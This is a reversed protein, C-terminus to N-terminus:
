SKVEYKTLRTYGKVSRIFRLEASELRIMGRKTKVWIESDNLLTPRDVFKYFKMQTDTHTKKLHKRITGCLNQLSNIKKAFDPEGELSLECWL